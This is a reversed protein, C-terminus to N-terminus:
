VIKCIKEMQFDGTKRRVQIFLPLGAKASGGLIRGQAVYTMLTSECYQIASCGKNNMVFLVFMSKEAHLVYINYAILDLKDLSFSM